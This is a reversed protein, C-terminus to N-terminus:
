AKSIAKKILKIVFFGGVSLAILPGVATLVATVNDSAESIISTAWAPLAANASGAVVVAAVAVAVKVGKSRLFSFNTKM